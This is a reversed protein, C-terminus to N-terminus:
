SGGGTQGNPVTPPIPPGDPLPVSDIDRRWAALLRYLTADITLRDGGLWVRASM